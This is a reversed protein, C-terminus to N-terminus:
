SSLSKYYTIAEDKIYHYENDKRFVTNWGAYPTTLQRIAGPNKIFETVKTNLISYNEASIMHRFLKAIDSTNNIDKWSKVLRHMKVTDSPSNVATDDSTDTDVDIDRKSNEKYEFNVKKLSPRDVKRNLQVSDIRSLIDTMNLDPYEELKAYIGQQNSLYGKYDNYANLTCYVKRTVLDSRSTGTIRGFKQAINVATTTSSDKHFLVTATLPNKDSLGVFSMGRSMLECGFIVIPKGIDKIDNLVFDISEVFYNYEPHGFIRRDDSNYVITICDMTKSLSLAHELQKKILTDYCYLIVEGTKELRIREIEHHLHATDGNWEIHKNVPMYNLPTPLVVIDNAKINQINSCNECTATVWVRRIRSFFGKIETFHIIWERHSAAIHSNRIDEIDDAKNVMDAEDHICIYNKVKINQLIKIVLNTLNAIQVANNLLVITVNEKNALCKIIKHFQAKKCKNVQFVNLKAKKFRNVVQLQQDKKNDCSVVSLWGSAKGLLEIISATKGVQTPATIIKNKVNAVNESIKDDKEYRIFSHILEMARKHNEYHINELEQAKSLAQELSLMQLRLAEQEAMIQSVSKVTM